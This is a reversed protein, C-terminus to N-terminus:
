EKHPSTWAWKRLLVSGHRLQGAFGPVLALTELGKYASKRLATLLQCIFYRTHRNHRDHLASRTCAM